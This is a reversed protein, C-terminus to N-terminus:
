RRRRSVKRKASLLPRIGRFCFCSGTTDIALAVQGVAGLSAALAPNRRLYGFNRWLHPPTIRQQAAAVRSRRNLQALEERRPLSKRSERSAPSQNRPNIEFLLPRNRHARRSGPTTGLDPSGEPEGGSPPRPARINGDQAPEHRWPCLYDAAAKPVTRNIAFQVNWPM